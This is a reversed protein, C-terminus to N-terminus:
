QKELVEKYSNEGYYLTRNIIAITISSMGTEETIKGYTKEEFLLQTVGLRDSLDKLEKPSRIDELFCRCDDINELSLIAKYSELEKKQDKIIKDESKM